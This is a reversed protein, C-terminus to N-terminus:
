HIIPLYIARGPTITVHGAEVALPIESGQSNTMKAKALTLTADGPALVRFRLTALVGDGNVGPAAGLSIAGLAVRGAVNDIEPGLHIVQRGSSALWDGFTVSELQLQKADYTVASEFSALDQVQEVNLQVEYTGEFLPAVGNLPAFRMTATQVGDPREISESAGLSQAQGSTALAGGCTEGWHNVVIMIDNIDIVGSGDLDLAPNWGPQGAQMGWASVVMMIDSIDVICDDNLDGELEQVTIFAGRAQVNAYLRGSADTLKKTEFGVQARGNSIARFTFRALWSTGEPPQGSGFSYAGFRIVGTANDISPGLPAATRGTSALWDGLEAKEAQLITPDFRLVIEYGAVKGPAVKMDLFFADGKSVVRGEPELWLQLTETGPTMTPQLTPTPAPTATAAPPPTPTAPNPNSMGHPGPGDPVADGHCVSCERLTDAYGQLRIVQINDREETSPLIAHPSGHCAECYLGGHGKSQRFLKGPEEAYQPGHCSGCQPLDVWPERSENALDKMSGHCDQCSLGAAAMTGRLCKTQPGPHCQYCEAQVDSTAVVQEPASLGGRDDCGDTPDLGNPIGDDDCDEGGEDDSGEGGGHKGHIAHSLSPLNPNGPMGLANSGHCNACLVPRQAMLNTGEEKDHLALINTEVNGTAIGEMGDYHCDDCNMETSVPAVFTTQALVKGTTADKAVLEALQYPQPAHPANDEYPTLPVGEIIFHDGEPKMVGSLRAGTLGVDPPLNVGFLQGAYQWFDTKGVSTTNNRFRYEIVVNDTVIEPEPGTRILQAWLTNYPPLVALNAFSENMCHMGLDNWGILQYEGAPPPTGRSPTATPAPTSTSAAGPYSGPDGPLTFAQIEELNNYGDGDSDLLEIAQFNHGHTRYDEGFANRQPISTHCVNCSDLQTGAVQPYTNVFNTLYNSKAQVVQADNQPWFLAAGMLAPIALAIIALWRIHRRDTSRRLIPLM